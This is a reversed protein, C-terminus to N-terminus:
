QALGAIMRNRTAVNNWNKTPTKKKSVHGIIKKINNDTPMSLKSITFSKPETLTYKKPDLSPKCSMIVSPAFPNYPTSSVLESCIKCEHNNCYDAIINIKPLQNNLLVYACNRYIDCTPTYIHNNYVIPGSHLFADKEEEIITPIMFFNPIETYVNPETPAQNSLSPEILGESEIYPYLREIIEESDEKSFEGLQDVIFDVLYSMDLLEKPITRIKTLIATVTKDYFALKAKRIEAYRKEEAAKQAAIREAKENARIKQLEAYSIEVIKYPQPKPMLFRGRDYILDYWGCGDRLARNFIKTEPYIVDWSEADFGKETLYVSIANPNKAMELMAENNIQVATKVQVAKKVM